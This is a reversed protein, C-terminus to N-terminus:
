ISLINPLNREQTNIGIYETFTLNKLDVKGTLHRLFSFVKKEVRHKMLIEENSIYEALKIRRMIKYFWKETAELRSKDM